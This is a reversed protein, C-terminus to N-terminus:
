INNIKPVEGVFYSLRGRITDYTNEVFSIHNQMKVCSKEVPTLMDKIENLITEIATLREEITTLKNTIDM